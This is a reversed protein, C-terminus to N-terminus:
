QRDLLQMAKIMRGSRFDKDGMGPTRTKWEHHRNCIAQMNSFGDVNKPHRGRPIVHDAELEGFCPGLGVHWGVECYATGLIRTQETKYIEFKAQWDKTRARQKPSVKRIHSFRPKFPGKKLSKRNTAGNWRPKLKQRKGLRLANGLFPAESYRLNLTQGTM